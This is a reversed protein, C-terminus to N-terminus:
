PTEAAQERTKKEAATEIIEVKDIFFRWGENSLGLYMDNRRGILRIKDGSKLKSIQDIFPNPSQTLTPREPDGIFKEVVCKCLSDGNKDRVCFGLYKKTSYDIDDYNYLREFEADMWGTKDKTKEPFSELFQATLEIWGAQAMQKSEVDLRAQKQDAKIKAIFAQDNPSLDAIPFINNTGDKRIVVKETGSSYYDGEFTGGQKFTWTRPAAMALLAIGLIGTLVFKTKM